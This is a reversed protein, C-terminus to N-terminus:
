KGFEYRMHRVPNSVWLSKPRVAIRIEHPHGSFHCCATSSLLNASVVGRLTSRFYLPRSFQISNLYAKNSNIAHDIESKGQAFLMSPQMSHAASFPNMSHSRSFAHEVDIIRAYEHQAKDVMRHLYLNNQNPQLVYKQTFNILWLVAHRACRWQNSFLINLPFVLRPLWTRTFLVGLEIEIINSTLSGTPQHTSIAIFIYIHLHSCWVCNTFVMSSTCHNTPLMVKTIDREPSNNKALKKYYSIKSCSICLIM